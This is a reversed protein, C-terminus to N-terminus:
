GNGPIAVVFSQGSGLPGREEIAKEFAAVYSSRPEDRSQEYELLAELPIRGQKAFAILDKFAGAGTFEDYGPWPPKAKMAETVHDVRIYSTGLVSSPNAYPVLGLRQSEKTCTAGDGLLVAEYLPRLDKDVTATDFVGYYFEAPQGDYAMGGLEENFEASFIGGRRYAGPEDGNDDRGANDFHNRAAEREAYPLVQRTFSAVRHPVDWVQASTGGQGQIWRMAGSHICIDYDDYQSVFRM